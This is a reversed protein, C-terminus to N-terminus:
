RNRKRVYDWVAANAEASFRRVVERAVPESVYKHGRRGTEIQDALDYRALISEASPYRIGLQQQLANLGTKKNPDAPAPM